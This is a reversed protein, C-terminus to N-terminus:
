FIVQEKLRDLSPPELFPENFFGEILLHQSQETDMGRSRLYQVEQPNFKGAASGHQCTVEHAAVELSPIACTRAFPSVLLARQQQDASSLRAEQTIGITGRYFSRAEESLVAKVTLRSSSSAGVHKQVTTLAAQESKKLAALWTYTVEARECLIFEKRIWSQDVGTLVEGYSLVAEKELYWRDHSALTSPRSGVYETKMTVQAGAGVVGIITRSCLGDPQSIDQIALRKGPTVGILVLERSGPTFSNCSLEIDSDDAIYLISCHTFTAGLLHLLSRPEKFLEALLEPWEALIFPAAGAPASWSHTGWWVPDSNKHNLAKLDWSLPSNMFKSLEKDPADEAKYGQLARERVFREFSSWNGTTSAIEVQEFPPFLTPPLCYNAM